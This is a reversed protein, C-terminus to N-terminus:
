YHPPVEADPDFKETSDGSKVAERLSQLEQMLGELLDRTERVVGDLEAINNELFAVKIQLDTIQDDM